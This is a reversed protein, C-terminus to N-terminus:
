GIPVACFAAFFHRTEASYGSIHFHKEIPPVAVCFEAIFVQDTWIIRLTQFDFIQQTIPYQAKYAAEKAVFIRLVQLGQQAPPLTSIEHQEEPRLITPWLDAPLAHLPEIDVGLGRYDRALGVVALCAGACHSISGMAAEPWLPARDPGMPIAAPALGLDRLAQRAASRGATFEALRAPVAGPLDEGSWLALPLAPEALRVGSPLITRLRTAIDPM